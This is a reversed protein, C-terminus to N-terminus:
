VSVWESVWKIHHANFVITVDQFYSIFLQDAATYVAFFFQLRCICHKVFAYLLTHQYHGAFGLQGPSGSYGTQGTAGTQGTVGPSGQSGAVGRQGPPGTGGAEGTAGIGGTAGTFGQQGGRGPPGAPGTAGVTVCMCLCVYQTIICFWMLVLVGPTASLGCFNWVYVIQLLIAGNAGFHEVNNDM